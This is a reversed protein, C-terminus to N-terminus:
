YSNILETSIALSRGFVVYRPWRDVYAVPINSTRASPQATPWSVYYRTPARIGSLSPPSPDTWLWFTLDWFPRCFRPCLAPCFRNASKYLSWFLLSWSSLLLRLRLTYGLRTMKRRMSVDSLLTETRGSFGATRRTIFTSKKWSPHDM